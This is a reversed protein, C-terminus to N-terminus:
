CAHTICVPWPDSLRARAAEAGGVLRMAFAEDQASGQLSETTDVEGKLGAM